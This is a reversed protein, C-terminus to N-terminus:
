VFSAECSKIKATEFYNEFRGRAGEQETEVSPQKRRHRPLYDSSHRPVIQGCWGDSRAGHWSAGSSSARRRADSKIEGDKFM